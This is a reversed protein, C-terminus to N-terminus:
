RYGQRELEATADEPVQMTWGRGALAQGSVTHRLVERGGYSVVFTWTAGQDAVESFTTTTKPGAEGLGLRGSEGVADVHLPIAARNDVRVTRYAPRGGIAAQALWVAGIAALVVAAIAVVAVARDTGAGNPRVRVTM